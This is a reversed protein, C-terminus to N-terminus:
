DIWFRNRWFLQKKTPLLNKVDKSAGSNKPRMRVSKSGEASKKDNQENGNPICCVKSHNRFLKFRCSDLRFSCGDNRSPNLSERQTKQVVCSNESPNESCCFYKRLLLIIKHPNESCCFFKKLTKQAVSTNQTLQAESVETESASPPSLERARQRTTSRSFTPM